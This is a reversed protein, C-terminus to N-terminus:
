WVRTAEESFPGAMNATVNAEFDSSVGQGAHLNQLLHILKDCKEKSFGQVISMPNVTLNTESSGGEENGFAANASGQANRYTRKQKTFKFSPPFEHLKYCKEILHGSKKCYNCFIGGKRNEFNGKQANGRNEWKANQFKTGVVNFSSTQGSFQISAHVERQKEEHLLISYAENPTPLSKMM